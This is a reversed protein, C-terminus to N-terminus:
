GNNDRTTRAGTPAPRARPKFFCGTTTEMQAMPRKVPAAVARPAPVKTRMTNDIRLIQDNMFALNEKIEQVSASQDTLNTNIKSELDALRQSIDTLATQTERIAAANSDVQELMENIRTTQQDATVVPTKKGSAACGTAIVAILLPVVCKWVTRM